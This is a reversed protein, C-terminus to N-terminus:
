VKDRPQVGSRGCGSASAASACPRVRPRHAAVNASRARISSHWPKRSNPVSTVRIGRHFRRTPWTKGRFALRCRSGRLPTSCRTSALELYSQYPDARPRSFLQFPILDLTLAIGYSGHGMVREIGGVQVVRGKEAEEKKQTWMEEGGGGNAAKRKKEKTELTSNKLLSIEICWRWNKKKGRHFLLIFARDKQLIKVIASNSKKQKSSFNARFGGLLARFIIHM